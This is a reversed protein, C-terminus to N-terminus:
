RFHELSHRAGVFVVFKSSSEDGSDVLKCRRGHRCCWSFAQEAVLNVVKGVAGDNFVVVVDSAHGDPGLLEQVALCSLTETMKATSSRSSGGNSGISRSSSRGVSSSRIKLAATRLDERRPLVSGGQGLAVQARGTQPYREAPVKDGPVVGQM